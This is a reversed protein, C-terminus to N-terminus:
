FDFSTAIFFIIYNLFSVTCPDVNSIVNSVPFTPIVYLVAVLKAINGVLLWSSISSVALINPKLKFCLNQKM